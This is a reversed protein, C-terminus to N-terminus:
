RPGPESVPTVVYTVPPSTSPGHTAPDTPTFGATLQHSRATLSSTTGSATGNAVTVPPGLNTTGDKFQVTGTATAPRVTATLYVPTGQSTPSTPSTSLTTRTATESPGGGTVVYTVPPSTSPGHTAPDTPTFGATLQHSRATLSSTTGSATGNAVTVPPGLNTTGDKFQVTGTATAPRVTATLYVPTGQSTPSTPSTSLTTSTTTM